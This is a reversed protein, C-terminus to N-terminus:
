ILRVFHTNIVSRCIVGLVASREMTQKHVLQINEM